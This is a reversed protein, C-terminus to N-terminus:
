GAPRRAARGERQKANYHERNNRQWEAHAANSCEKCWSKLKMPGSRGNDSSFSAFPKTRECKPCWKHDKPMDRYTDGPMHAHRTNCSRCVLGCSGDRYHQLSIVTPQGDASLWNMARGCDPCILGPRILRELIHDSPAYLGRRTALARMQGFRYHKACLWQHGQRRVASERCLGRGCPFAPGGNNSKM